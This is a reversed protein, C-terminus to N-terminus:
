WCMRRKGDIKLLLSWFTPENLFMEDIEREREELILNQLVNYVVDVDKSFIISYVFLININRKNYM